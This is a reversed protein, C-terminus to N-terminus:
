ADLKALRANSREVTAVVGVVEDPAFDGGLEPSCFGDLRIPRVAGLGDILTLPLFDDPVLRGQDQKVFQRGIEVVGARLYEALARQGVHRDVAEGAQHAGRQFQWVAGDHDGVERAGVLGLGLRQGIGDGVQLLFSTTLRHRDRRNLQRTVFDVLDQLFTEDVLQRVFTNDGVDRFFERLLDLLGLVAAVDDGAADLLDGFLHPFGIGEMGGELVEDRQELFVFAEALSAAQHLESCAQELTNVLAFGVVDEQDACLMEVQVVLLDLVLDLTNRGLQHWRHRAVDGVRAVGDGLVDVGVQRAIGRLLEHGQQQRGAQRAGDTTANAKGFALQDLEQGCGLSLGVLEQLGQLAQAFRRPVEVAFLLAEEDLFGLVERALDLAVGLFNRLGLDILREDIAERADERRDALDGILVHLHQGPQIFELETARARQDDDLRIALHRGTFQLVEEVVLLLLVVQQHQAPLVAQQGVRDFLPQALQVGDLLDVLAEFGAVGQEFFGAIAKFFRFIAEAFRQRRGVVAQVERGVVWHVPAVHQGPDGDVLSQLEALAILRGFRLDFFQQGAWAGIVLQHGLQALVVEVFAERLSLLVQPRRALVVTAGRPLVDGGAGLARRDPRPHRTGTAQIREFGFGQFM